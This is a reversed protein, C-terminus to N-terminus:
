VIVINRHTMALGPAMNAVLMPRISGSGDLDFWLSGTARNYIFRDGAVLAAAGLRFQSAPLIGPKLGGGFRQHIQVSDDVVSFDQIRDGIFAWGYFYFRDRGPGGILRDIGVGGMLLDDGQNGWLIDNGASGSLVDNGVGGSLRDHDLGGNILDNGRDGSVIDHGQEGRIRDNGVGGYVRDRGRGADIQDHGGGGQIVDSSGYAYILNNLSNGVLRDAHPTGHLVVPLLPASPDSPTDSHAPLTLGSAAPPMSPAPAVAPLPNSPVSVEASSPSRDDSVSFRHTNEVEVDVGTVNGVIAGTQNGNVENALLFLDVPADKVSRVTLTAVAPTDAFAMWDAGNWHFSDMGQAHAAPVYRLTDIAAAKIEQNVGVAAEGLFLTGFRPLTTITIQELFDGDEDQFAAQFDSLTLAIPSDEDGVKNFEQVRPLANRTLVVDNGDGGRYTIQGTFGAAKVIAGEPLDNFIGSVASSGLNDLITLRDGQRTYSGSLLLPTDDLTISGNVRLRDFPYPSATDDLDIKLTAAKGLVISATDLLAPQIGGPDLIGGLGQIAGVSGTGTLVGSLLRVSSSSQHGLVRLTGSEIRTVGTYSHDGSLELLTTDTKILGGSGSITGGFSGQSVTLNGSGLTISGSGSLHHITEPQHNLDLRGDSFLTVIASNAIQEAQHLQVMASGPTGIGDGIQLAGPIAISGIRDLVLMGTNVLSVGTYTNSRDGSFTLVGGSASGDLIWGRDGVMAAAVTLQANPNSFRFQLDTGALLLQGNEWANITHSGTGNLEVLQVDLEGALTAIAPVGVNFLLRNVVLGDIDMTASADTDFIVVVEGIEGLAPPQNSWRNPDSWLGSGGLWTHSAM